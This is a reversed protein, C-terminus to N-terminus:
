RNLLMNFNRRKFLGTSNLFNSLLGDAYFASIDTAHSASIIFPPQAIVSDGNAIQITTKDKSMKQLQAISKEKKKRSRVLSWIYLQYNIL